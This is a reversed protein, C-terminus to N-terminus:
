SDLRRLGETSKVIITDGDIVRVVKAEISHHRVCLILSIALVLLLLRKM